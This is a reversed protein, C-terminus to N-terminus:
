DGRGGSGTAARGLRDRIADWAEGAPVTEILLRDVGLRDLRRLGDYLMRGYDRPDAPAALWEVGGALQPERSWVALRRGLRRLDAIRDALQSADVLEVPTGPAYHAALSGPVRPAAPEAGGIPEGLAEALASGTIAGPRLLRPRGASLDVITSELGIEADGGDLILPVDGDLDALVHEARTPSVKGFRNASPAAVGQGGGAAFGALLSKAVPHSPCRLGITPQGACAHAPAQARRPLILTLPGPWFAEVLARARGGTEAWFGLADADAVHVILPHDRPRRKIRYIAAVAAANAADAGLGYVTETPFAVPLGARLAEIARAIGEDDAPLVLGCSRDPESM